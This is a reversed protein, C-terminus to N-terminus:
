LRPLPGLHCDDNQQSRTLKECKNRNKLMGLGCGLASIEGMETQLTGRVGKSPSMLLRRSSGRLNCSLCAFAAAVTTVSSRSSIVENIYILSEVTKQDIM